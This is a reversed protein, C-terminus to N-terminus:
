LSKLPTGHRTGGIKNGEMGADGQILVKGEKRIQGFGADLAQQDMRHSHQKWGVNSRLPVEPDSLQGAGPKWSKLDTELIESFGPLNLQKALEADAM